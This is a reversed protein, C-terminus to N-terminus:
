INSWSRLIACRLATVPKTPWHWSDNRKVSISCAVGGMFSSPRSRTRLNIGVVNSRSILARPIFFSIGTSFCLLITCFSKEITACLVRSIKSGLLYRFIITASAGYLKGIRVYFASSNGTCSIVIKRSYVNPGFNQRNQFFSSKIRNKYAIKNTWIWQTMMDLDYQPCCPNECTRKFETKHCRYNFFINAYQQNTLFTLDVSLESAFVKRLVSVFFM